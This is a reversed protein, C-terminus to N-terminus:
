TRGWPWRPREASLARGRPRAAGSAPRVLPAGLHGTLAAHAGLTLYGQGLALAACLCAVVLNRPSAARALELRVVACLEAIM